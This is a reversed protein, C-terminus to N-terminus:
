VNRWIRRNVIREITSPAVGYDKALAKCAKHKFLRDLEDIRAELESERFAQLLLQKAEAISEGEKERDIEVAGPVRICWEIQNALTDLTKDIRDELTNM